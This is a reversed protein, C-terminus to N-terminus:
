AIAHLRDATVQRALPQRDFFREMEEAIFLALRRTITGAPGSLTSPWIPRHASAHAQFAWM